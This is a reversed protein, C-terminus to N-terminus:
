EADLEFMFSNYKRVQRSPEAAVSNANQRTVFDSQFEGRVIQRLAPDRETMTLGRGANKM